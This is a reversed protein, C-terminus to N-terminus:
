AEEKFDAALQILLLMMKMMLSELILLLQTWVGDPRSLNKL